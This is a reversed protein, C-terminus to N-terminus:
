SQQFVLLGLERVCTDGLAVFRAILRELVAKNAPLGAVDTHETFDGGTAPDGVNFLCPADAFCQHQAYATKNFPVSM